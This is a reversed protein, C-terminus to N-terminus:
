LYDMAQIHNKTMEQISHVVKMMKKTDHSIRCQVTKSRYWYKAKM